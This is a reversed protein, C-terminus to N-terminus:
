RAESRTTPGAGSRRTVRAGLVIGALPLWIWLAENALIELGRVSFFAAPSLPSAAIPRWAFFNRADSFPVLFGIGLGADTFADLFGHSATALFALGFLMWRDASGRGPGPRLLVAVMIGAALAFPLSHSLGRHGLPHAYPIGLWLGITDLDPLIALGILVAALRPGRVSAPGLPALAGGVLAHTFATPM